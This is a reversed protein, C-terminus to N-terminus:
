FVILASMLVVPEAFAVMQVQHLFTVSNIKYVHAELM